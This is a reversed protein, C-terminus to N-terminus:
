LFDRRRFILAALGLLLGAYLVTYGLTNLLYIGPGSGDRMPMTLTRYGPVYLSFNPVVESFWRLMTRVSPALVKSKMTAMDDASRGVIWVGLTFVGTLFPTSFSSFVMAVAALVTVEAFILVLMALVPIPPQAAYHLAGVGGLLAFVSWPILVATKDRARWMALLLVGVVFIPMGFSVWAPVGAQISMVWLQIAGMIAVFVGATLSIGLYKGLLFEYRAIPKPLIIYLTKREIEKYLLSSGLFIAVLVSFLSISAIGIDRVVRQQQNLSLEALALSFLLVASAFGLLGYLVRDRVAERFTNLAIAYIRDM